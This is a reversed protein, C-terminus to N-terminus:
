RRGIFVSADIPFENRFKRIKFFLKKRKTIANAFDIILVTIIIASLVYILRVWRDRELKIEFNTLETRLTSELNSIRVEMEENQKQKIKLQESLVLTQNHMLELTETYMTDYSNVRQTISTIYELYQSDRSGIRNQVEQEILKNLTGKTLEALKNNYDSSNYVASENGPELITTEANALNVFAIIVLFLFMLQKKKM